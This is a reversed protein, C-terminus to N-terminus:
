RVAAEQLIFQFFSRAEELRDSLQEKKSGQRKRKLDYKSFTLFHKDGDAQLYSTDSLRKLLRDSFLQRVASEDKGTVLYRSSFQQHDTFEVKVNGQVTVKELLRNVLSALRGTMDIKPILTFRPLNLYPSAIALGWKEQLDQGEDSETWVEYLYLLYNNERRQYLNRLSLKQSERKTYLAILHTLLSPDPNDIAQFGLALISEKKRALRKKESTIMGFVAVGFIGIIIAVILLTLIM